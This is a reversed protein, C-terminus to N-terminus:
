LLGVKDPPQTLDVLMASYYSDRGQAYNWVMCSKLRHSNEDILVNGSVGAHWTWESFPWMVFLWFKGFALHRVSAM